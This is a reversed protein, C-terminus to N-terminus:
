SAAEWYGGVLMMARLPPSTDEAVEGAGPSQVELARVLLVPPGRELEFLIRQLGVIETDFSVRLDVRGPDEAEANEIPAFETEVVRGGAEAITSAVLQQLAAGAIAATEGPLYITAADPTGAAHDPSDLAAIRQRLGDLLVTQGRLAEALTAASVLSWTVWVAPVLVMLAVLALSAARAQTIAGPRAASM